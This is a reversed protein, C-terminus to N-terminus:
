ITENDYCNLHLVLGDPYDEEALVTIVTADDAPAYLLGLGIEEGTTPDFAGLPVINDYVLGHPVNQRAGAVLAPTTIKKGVPTTSMIEETDTEAFGYCRVQLEAFSESVVFQATNNDIVEVTGTGIQKGFIDYVRIGTNPRNLNHVVEVPADAIISQITVTKWILADALNLTPHYRSYVVEKKKLLEITYAALPYGKDRQAELKAGENKIYQLGEIYVTDFSMARNIIDALYNPIGNTDGFIWRYVNFPISDLKTIDYNQNRYAVDKSAPIFGDSAFGGECRVICYTARSLGDQYFVMDFDNVQNGYRIQITDPHDARVEIPESCLDTTNGPTETCTVEIFYYGEAVAAMSLYCEYYTYPSYGTFTMETVAFAYSLAGSESVMSAVVSTTASKKIGVQFRIYDGTEYKQCYKKSQEWGPLSNFYFEDGETLNLLRVPNAYPVIVFNASM